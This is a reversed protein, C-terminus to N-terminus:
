TNMLLHARFLMPGWREKQTKQKNEKMMTCIFLCDRRTYCHVSVDNKTSYPTHGSKWIYDYGVEDVLQGLSLVCPCDEIYSSVAAAVRVALELIWIEVCEEVCIIETASRLPIPRDLKRVTDREEKSLDMVSVMHNTAGSGLLLRRASMALM